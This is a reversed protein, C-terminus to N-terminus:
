MERTATASSNPELDYLLFELIEEDNTFDGVM